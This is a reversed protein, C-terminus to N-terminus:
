SDQHQMRCRLVGGNQCVQLGITPRTELVEWIRAAPEVVNQLGPLTFQFSLVNGRLIDSALLCPALDAAVLQGAQRARLRWVVEELPFRLVICLTDLSTRRSPRSVIRRNVGLTIPKKKCDRVRSPPTRWTASVRLPLRYADRDM